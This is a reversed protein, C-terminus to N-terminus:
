NSIKEIISQGTMEKPKEIDMYNLITPAFSDLAFTGEKLTVKRDTVIFPVPNTTHTTKNAGGEDEINGHDALIICTYGNAEACSVVKKLSEDLTELTKICADMNGTHGIMDGNSYNVLIFDYIGKEMSSTLTATIEPARMVPYDAFNVVNKSEILKRDENPYPKEIGGNFYYTVHAYKTTEALKLQKYGLKSLYQSLTNQPTIEKFLVEINKVRKDYECMSTLTLKPMKGRKFSIFNKNAFARSLQRMRDPRFNFFLIEDGNNMGDYGGISFPPAFEDSVKRDYILTFADAFTNAKIEGKGYCFLNFATETRDWRDERDMAYFRGILTAIEGVGYENLKIQLKQVFQKGSDAPTDRGDLICHVKVKQVGNKALIKILAILHELSSHVGGNSVMGILHLTTNKTKVREIQEVLVPNKELTNNQVEKNIRMLDQLLVRGAGLTLHGVESNGMQGKPLGVYEESAYITTNPYKTLMSQYFPMKALYFPNDKKEKRVGFGDLIIGVIPKNTKM